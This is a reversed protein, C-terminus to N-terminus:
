NPQHQLSCLSRQRTGLKRRNLKLDLRSPLEHKEMAGPSEEFVESAFSSGEEDSMGIVSSLSIDFQVVDEEENVTTAPNVTKLPLPERDRELLGIKQPEQGRERLSSRAALVTNAVAEALVTARELEVKDM